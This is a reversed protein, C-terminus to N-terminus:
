RSETVIGNEDIEVPAGNCTFTLGEFSDTFLANKLNLQGSLTSKGEKVLEAKASVTVEKTINNITM